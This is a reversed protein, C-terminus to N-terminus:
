FLTLLGSAAVTHSFDVLATGGGGGGIELLTTKGGGGITKMLQFGGGMFAGGVLVLAIIKGWHREQSKQSNAWLKMGAFVGGLLLMIVGIGVLVKGGTTKLWETANDLVSNVDWAAVIDSAPGLHNLTTIVLDM